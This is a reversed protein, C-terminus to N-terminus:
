DGKNKIIKIIEEIELPLPAEIIDFGNLDGISGQPYNNRRKGTNYQLWVRKVTPECYYGKYDNNDNHEVHLTVTLSYDCYQATSNTKKFFISTEARLGFPGLIEFKECDLLPTLLEALPILLTQIWSKGYQMSELRHIQKKLRVISKEKECIKEAIKRKNEDASLYGEYISEITM